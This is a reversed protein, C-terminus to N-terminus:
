ASERPVARFRISSSFAKGPEVIPMASEPEHRNVADNVNPVPEFCFGEVDDRICVM